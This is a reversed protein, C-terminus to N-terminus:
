SQMEALIWFGWAPNADHLNSVLGQTRVSSRVEFQISRNMLKGLPRFM